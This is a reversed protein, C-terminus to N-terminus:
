KRSSELRELSMSFTNETKTRIIENSYRFQTEIESTIESSTFHGHTINFVLKGTESFSLLTGPPDASPQQLQQRTQLAIMAYQQNNRVETDTFTYQRIRAFQGFPTDALETTEWQDGMEQSDEPLTVISSGWLDNMGQSTLLEQLNLTGPLEELVALNEEPLDVNLLKGQASMQVIFRLGVLPEIQRLLNLSERRPRQDSSTNLAVAQSPFEPNEVQLRIDRISQEITANSDEDVSVVLWDFDVVTTSILRVTRRDVTTSSISKQELQLAFQDGEKLQWTMSDNTEQALSINSIAISLFLIVLLQPFFLVLPNRSPLNLSPLNRSPLNRLNRYPQALWIFTPMTRLLLSLM